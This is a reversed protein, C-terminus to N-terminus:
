RGALADVIKLRSARLAPLVGVVLGIVVVLGAGVAWTQGPVRAPLMGGAKAALAPLIGAALGLGIAGGLGILLLSEVLVLWLMTRDQFGLTKLTALEPVRERVAQAMTNGTLLLLTFFVAGMISTVILGIDAFQKVFAQQWSSETQSKTEHDSNMSLADIAQAVRSADDPNNLTVTYWSVQSKIYDNSEDFYKWNMVLQNEENAATSRDKARFIGVLQLPWDNSGGRPFITAQLPITDGLKWGFKNALTEGVVAGTRTTQFAKLQAPPLQLNPYLDFYNPAVSFNPFFDKPDRYIGGFWMAYTVDKVGQVQKIKQELNLPLTQTISLRSAVILRNAGDVSGGSNFAVRVSDLMGYLLFAAVVSLLTLFTRTKSRFLQAWVLSLYKM